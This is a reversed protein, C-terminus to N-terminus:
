RRRWPCRIRRSTLAAVMRAVRDQSVTATADDGAFADLRSAILPGVVLIESRRQLRRGRLTAILEDSRSTDALVLIRGFPAPRIGLPEQSSDKADYAEYPETAM